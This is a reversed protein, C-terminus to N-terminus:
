TLEADLDWLVIAQEGCAAVTVGDPAFAVTKIPGIKWDWTTVERGSSNWLRVLGEGSGAAIGRGSPHFALSLADHGFGKRTLLRREGVPDWWRLVGEALTALQRGTPAFAVAHVHETHELWAVQDGTAVEWVRVSYNVQTAALYRCDASFAVSQHLAPNIYGPGPFSQLYNGQLDCMELDALQGTGPATRLCRAVWQGDPSFALCYTDLVTGAVFEGNGTRAGSQLQELLPDCSLVRGGLLVHEGGPSFRLLHSWSAPVPVTLKQSYATLDWLRLSGWSDFSALLPAAPHFACSHFRGHDITLTQM